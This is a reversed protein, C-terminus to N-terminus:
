TSKCHTENKAKKSPESYSLFSNTRAWAPHTSPTAMPSFYPSKRDLKEKQENTIRRQIPHWQRGDVITLFIIGWRVAVLWLTHCKISISDLKIPHIKWESLKLKSEPVWWRNLLAFSSVANVNSTPNPPTYFAIPIPEKQIKQIRKFWLFRYFGGVAIEWCHKIILQNKIISFKHKVRFVYLHPLNGSGVDKLARKNPQRENIVNM